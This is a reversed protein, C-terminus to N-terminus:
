KLSTAGKPHAQAVVTNVTTRAVPARGVSLATQIVTAYDNRALISPSVSNASVQALQKMSDQLRTTQADTAGAAKLVTGFDHNLAAADEPRLNQWQGLDRLRENFGNLVEPNPPKLQGIIASLNAQIQTLVAPPIYRGPVTQKLYVPLNKVRREKKAISDPDNTITSTTTTTATKVGDTTVVVTTTTTQNKLNTTTTSSTTTKAKADAASITASATSLLQRGELTDTMPVYRRRDM